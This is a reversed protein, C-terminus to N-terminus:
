RDQGQFTFNLTRQFVSEYGRYPLPQARLVAAEVSRRGAEDYPCSPDVKADIVEGGPLQRITVKCRQGLPVSEPRIWQDSVAAQIAAAYRASLDESTGNQGRPGTSPATTAAASSTSAAAAARQQQLNQVQRNKQEALAVERAAQKRRERIDALKKARDEDMQQQALRAKREAEQQRERETLDIQEQRRKAEQEKLAKEQSIALADAADQDIKDPVPIREQAQQQPAVPSDQPRPEPLPQPPTVTEEEDLSPPLPEPPKPADRMAQQASALDADSIVLSAEVMPSGAAPEFRHTPSWLYAGLFLLGLLLHVGIAGAVPVILDDRDDHARRPFADAHM